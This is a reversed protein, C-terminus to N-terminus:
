QSRHESDALLFLEKQEYAHAYILLPTVLTPHNLSLNLWEQLQKVLTNYSLGLVKLGREFTAV